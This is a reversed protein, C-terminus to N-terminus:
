ACWPIELPIESCVWDSYLLWQLGRKSNPGTRPLTGSNIRILPMSELTRPKGGHLFETDRTDRKGPSARGDRPALEELVKWPELREPCFACIVVADRTGEKLVM